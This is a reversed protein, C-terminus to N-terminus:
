IPVTYDKETWNRPQKSTLFHSASSLLSEKSLLLSAPIVCVTLVTCLSTMLVASAPEEAVSVKTESNCSM